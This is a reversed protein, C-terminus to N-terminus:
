WPQQDKAGQREPDLLLQYQLPQQNEEPLDDLWKRLAAAKTRQGQNHDEGAESHALQQDQGQQGDQSEQEDQNGQQQNQEGQQQQQNEQNQGQEGPEQQGPQEQQGSQSEQEQEQEQNPDQHEKVDIRIEAEAHAGWRDTVRINCTYEGLQEPTGVLFGQEVLDIGDPPLDIAEWTFPPTGGKVTLQERAPTGLRLPIAQEQTIVPAENVPISINFGRKQQGNKIIYFQLPTEAAVEATGSVLGTTSLSFVTNTDADNEWSYSADPGRVGLQFEYPRWQTAAPMQQVNPLFGDKSVQLSLTSSLQHYDDACTVTLEHTGHESTQGDIYLGNQQTRTQLGAPLGNITWTPNIFGRSEILAEYPTDALAEPLQETTIAPTPHVVLTLDGEASAGQDNIKITLKHRGEAEESPKGSIIGNSGLNLGQPLPTAEAVAFQYPGGSGGAAKVLDHYSEGIWAPKLEKSTLRLRRAEQEAKKRAEERKILLLRELEQRAAILDDANQDRKLGLLCAAIAEELRGQGHLALALNLAAAVAMQDNPSSTAQRFHQSAKVHNGQGLLVCGFNYHAAHFGPHELLLAELQEQVQDPPAALARELQQWPTAAILPVSSMIIFASSLLFKFM